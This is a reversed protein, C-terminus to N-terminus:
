TVVCVGVDLRAGRQQLLLGDLGDLQQRLHRGLERRRQVVDLRRAREGVHDGTEDVDLRASFCVM